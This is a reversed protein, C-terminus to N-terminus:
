LWKYRMGAVPRPEKRNIARPVARVHRHKDKCFSDKAAGRDLQEIVAVHPPIKCVDVVDALRDHTENIAWWLGIRLPRSVLWIGRGASRRPLNVVDAAVTGFFEHM